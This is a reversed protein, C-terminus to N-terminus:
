TNELSFKYIHYKTYKGLFIQLYTFYFQLPIENIKWPFRYIHCEMYKGLFIQLHSCFFNYIHFKMYKGLFIQLHPIEHIEWPFNTFTTSWTNELSFKYCQFKMYKGLSSFKYIHCEMSNGLFIQLHQFIFKYFHIEHIEWPFNTCTTNLTNELSFKYIHSTVNYIHFKM